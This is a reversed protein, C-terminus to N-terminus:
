SSKSRPTIHLDYGYVICTDNYQQRVMFIIIYYLIIAPIISYYVIYWGVLPHLQGDKKPDLAKARQSNPKFFFIDRATSYLVNLM